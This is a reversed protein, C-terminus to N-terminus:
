SHSYLYHTHLYDRKFISMEAPLCYIELAKLTTDFNAKTLHAIQVKKMSLFTDKLKPMDPINLVTVSTTTKSSLTNTILRKENLSHKQLLLLVFKNRQIGLNLAEDINGELITNKIIIEEINKWNYLHEHYYGQFELLRMQIAEKAEKLSNYANISTGKMQQSPKIYTIINVNSKILRALDIAFFYTNINIQASSQLFVVTGKEM